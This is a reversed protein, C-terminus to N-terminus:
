CCHMLYVNQGIVVNCNEMLVSIKVLDTSNANGAHCKTWLTCPQLGPVRAM